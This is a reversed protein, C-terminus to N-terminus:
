GVPQAEADPLAIFGFCTAAKKSEAARARQGEAFAELYVTSITPQAVLAEQLPRGAAGDSWGALWTDFGLRAPLKNMDAVTRAHMGNAAEEVLRLEAALFDLRARKDGKAPCRTGPKSDLYVCWEKGGAHSRCAINGQRGFHRSTEAVVEVRLGQGFHHTTPAEKLTELVVQEVAWWKSIPYPTMWRARVVMRRAHWRDVIGSALKRSGPHTPYCLEINEGAPIATFAVGRARLLLQLAGALTFAEVEASTADAGPAPLDVHKNVHRM